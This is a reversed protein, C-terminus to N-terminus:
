PKSQAETEGTRFDGSYDAYLALNELYLARKPLIKIVQRM